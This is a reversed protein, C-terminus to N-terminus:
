WHGAQAGGDIHLTEGTVFTASELDLLGPSGTRGEGGAFVRADLVAPTTCNTTRECAFATDEIKIM